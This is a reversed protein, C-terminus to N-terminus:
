TCHHIYLVYNSASLKQYEKKVHKFTCVLGTKTCKLISIGRLIFPILIVIFFIPLCVYLTLINNRDPLIQSNQLVYVKNLDNTNVNIHFLGM